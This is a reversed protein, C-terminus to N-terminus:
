QRNTGISKLLIKITELIIQHNEKILTIKDNQVNSIKQRHIVIIQKVVENSNAIQNVKFFFCM